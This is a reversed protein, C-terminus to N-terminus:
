RSRKRKRADKQLADIVDQKNSADSIDVGREGALEDLESRTMRELEAHSPLEYGEDPSDPAVPKNPPEGIIPKGDPTSVPGTGPPLVDSGPPENISGERPSVPGGAEDAPKEAAPPAVGAQSEMGLSKPDVIGGQAEGRKASPINPNVNDRTQQGGGDAANLRDEPKTREHFDHPKTELLQRKEDGGKEQEHETM